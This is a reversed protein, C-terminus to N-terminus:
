FRECRIQEALSALSPKGDTSSETPLGLSRPWHVRQCGYMENGRQSISQPKLCQSHCWRICPASRKKKVASVRGRHGSVCGRGGHVGQEHVVRGSRCPVRPLPSRRERNSALLRWLGLSHLPHALRKDHSRGLPRRHGFPERPVGPM